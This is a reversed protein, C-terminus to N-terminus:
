LDGVATISRRRRDYVAAVAFPPDGIGGGIVDGRHDFEQAFRPHVKRATLFQEQLIETGESDTPEM